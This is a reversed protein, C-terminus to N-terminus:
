GSHTITKLFLIITDHVILPFSATGSIERGGGVGGCAPHYSIVVCLFIVKRVVGVAGCHSSSINSSCCHRSIKISRAGASGAVVDDARLQRSFRM